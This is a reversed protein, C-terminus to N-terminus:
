EQAEQPTEIPQMDVIKWQDDTKELTLEFSATQWGPAPIRNPDALQEPTQKSIPLYGVVANVEQTLSVTATDEWPLTHMSILDVESEFSEMDYDLYTMDNYIDDSLICDDSFFKPLEEADSLGMVVSTRMSMGDSVLIYINSANMAMLFGGMCLLLVVAVILAAKFLCYLFRIVYDM